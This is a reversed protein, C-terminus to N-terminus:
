VHYIGEKSWLRNEASKRACFADLLNDFYGLHIKKHAIKIQAQWIKDRKHWNVGAMGSKNNPHVRRNRAQQKRTAWVCNDPSYGKDNDVREITHEPTPKDGMDAYFADFTLWRDCVEIGRGGYSKYAPNDKKFCRAKM